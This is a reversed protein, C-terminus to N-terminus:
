KQRPKVFMYLFKPRSLLEDRIAQIHTKDDIRNASVSFLKEDFIFDVSGNPGYRTIHIFKIKNNISIYYGISKQGIDRIKGEFGSFIPIKDMDKVLQGNKVYIVDELFLEKDVSERCNCDSNYKRNCEYGDNIEKGEFGLFESIPTIAVRKDIEAQLVEPPYDNLELMTKSNADWNALYSSFLNYQTAIYLPVYVIKGRCLVQLESKVIPHNNTSITGLNNTGVVRDSKCDESINKIDNELSMKKM